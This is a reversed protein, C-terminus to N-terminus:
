EEDFFKLGEMVGSTGCSEALLLRDKWDNKEHHLKVQKALAPDANGVVITKYGATMAALDNGSDGAFVISQAEIERFSAWWNLGFAKSVGLPLIDILGDGNFPDVSAIIEHAVESANLAATIAECNTSLQQADAYYSLKFRGQKEDEQIQLGPVHKVLDALPQIDNAGLIKRLCDAYEKSPEFASSSTTRFVSTGVDCIIWDPSPLKFEKIAAQVSSLHRGTVFVLQIEKERITKSLRQLDTKNESCDSLPILTGDLDTALVGTFSEKTTSGSMAMM